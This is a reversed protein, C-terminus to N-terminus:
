KDVTEERYRKLRKKKCEEQNRYYYDKSWRRRATIIEEKTKYIRKRGM